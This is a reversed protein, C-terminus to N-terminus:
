IALFIGLLTALGQDPFAADAFVSNFGFGASKVVIL